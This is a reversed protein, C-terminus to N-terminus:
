MNEGSRDSLAEEIREYEINFSDIAKCAPCQYYGSDKYDDIQFVVDNVRIKTQCQACETWPNEYEYFYVPEPLQDAIDPEQDPEITAKSDHSLLQLIEEQNSVVLVKFIRNSGDFESSEVRVHSIIEEPMEGKYTFRKQYGKAQVALNGANPNKRISDRKIKVIM